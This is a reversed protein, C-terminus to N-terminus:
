GAREIPPLSTGGDFADSEAANVKKLDVETPRWHDECFAFADLKGGDCVTAQLM